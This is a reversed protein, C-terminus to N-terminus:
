TLQMGSRKQMGTNDNTLFFSRKIINDANTHKCKAPTNHIMYIFM